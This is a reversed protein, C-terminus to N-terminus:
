TESLLAEQSTESTVLHLMILSVTVYIGLKKMFWLLGNTPWFYSIASYWMAADNFNIM